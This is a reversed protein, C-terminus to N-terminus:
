GNVAEAQTQVSARAPSESRIEATSLAVVKLAADRFSEGDIGKLAVVPAADFARFHNSM